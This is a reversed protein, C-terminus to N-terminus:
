AAPTHEQKEKGNSQGAKRRAVVKAMEIMEGLEDGFFNDPWNRINGYLDIALKELISDGNSMKAFYLAMDEYSFSEEAIRRQLRRLLHESHSELIIQINRTKIADIFVDALGAQVAPHLHIEPQELIITSGEPVYYCLVLVPLIQSVGFGVDTIHVESSRKTRKVRVEYDKRNEAIPQLSFSYILGLERLCEAVREEVTKKRKRYGRSIKTGRARSALLAPVALEGRQGVDQPQEGAWVYSRQPYERLPGLYYLHKFLEEFAFVLESLFGANQYYANVQDPFAYSKVPRPLPWNRGPTRKLHYGDFVLDYKEKEKSKGTRKRMGFRYADFRYEFQEVRIDDVSGKILMSFDLHRIDFLTERAKEPNEIRLPKPLQWALEFSISGPQEHDYVLDYFTGLDVYTRHDGTHLVRSRDTSEVTQKMMLLLQLLSTKGSSNTGFFATLPALRFGPLNDWSKFHQASIQTIM